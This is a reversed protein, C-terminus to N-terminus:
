SGTPAEALAFINGEPDLADWAGWPRQVLPVGLARLRELEVALDPAQFVLKAPSDERPAPPTAIEIGAAIDPPIAHLALVASGTDFEVWQSTRTEPVPAQRLLASYFQEMEPLSKVYLLVSHLCM